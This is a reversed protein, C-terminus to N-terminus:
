EAGMGKAAPEGLDQKLGRWRRPRCGNGITLPARVQFGFGHCLHILGAQQGHRDGTGEHGIGVEAVPQGNATHEGRVIGDDGVGDTHVDGTAHLHRHQVQRQAIQFTPLVPEGAGDFVFGAKPNPGPEAVAALVAHQIGVPGHAGDRALVLVTGPTLKAGAAAAVVEDLEVAEGHRIAFEAQLRPFVDRQETVTPTAARAGGRAAM